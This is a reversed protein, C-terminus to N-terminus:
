QGHESSARRRTEGCLRSHHNSETLAGVLNLLSECVQAGHADRNGGNTLVHARRVLMNWHRSPPLRRFEVFEGNSTLPQTQLM